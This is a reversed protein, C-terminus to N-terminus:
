YTIGIRFLVQHKVYNFGGGTGTEVATTDNKQLLYGVGAYFWEQVQYDADLSAQLFGDTRESPMKVTKTMDMPDVSELIYGHYRRYEYRLNAMVNFRRAIKQRVSVFPSDVDYFTGIVSNRFEHRYGLVIDTTLAPRFITEGLITLNSAGSPNEAGGQYFAASYGAALNVSLKETVLGRLGTIARFPYSSEKPNNPDKEFYNIAGQSLQVFIATKPLWRWSGDVMVEHSMLNAYKLEPNAFVDITNMYRLNAQLRGGGPAARLQLAATNNNRTINKM